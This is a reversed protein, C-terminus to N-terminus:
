DALDSIPIVHPPGARLCGVWAGIHCKDDTSQPPLISM